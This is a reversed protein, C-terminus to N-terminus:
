RRKEKSGELGGKGRELEMKGHGGGGVRIECVNDILM